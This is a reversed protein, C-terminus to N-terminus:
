VAEVFEEEVSVPKLLLLTECECADSWLDFNM